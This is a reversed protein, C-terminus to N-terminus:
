LCLLCIKNLPTGLPAPVVHFNRESVNANLGTWDLGKFKLSLWDLEDVNERIAEFNRIETNALANLLSSLTIILGLFIQVARQM